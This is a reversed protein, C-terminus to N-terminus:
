ALLLRSAQEQSIPKERISGNVVVVQDCTILLGERAPGTRQLRERIAAAKAHALLRVLQDPGSSREGIAQEDIDAKATKYQFFYDKALEKMIAAGHLIPNLLLPLLHLSLDGPAAGQRSASATGLILPPWSRCVMPNQQMRLSLVRSRGSIMLCPAQLTSRFNSWM